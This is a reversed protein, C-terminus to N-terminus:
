FYYEETKLCNFPERFTLNNIINIIFFNLWDTLNVLADSKMLSQSVAALQHLKNILMNVHHHILSHQNWLSDETFFHSMLNYVCKHFKFDSIIILNNTLNNLSIYISTLIAVNMISLLLFWDIYYIKNKVAQKHSHHFNYIDNWTEENAFFIEDSVLWIIEDYKEHLEQERKVLKGTLLCYIFPLRSAAWLKPGTFNM